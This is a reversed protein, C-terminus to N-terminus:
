GHGDTVDTAGAQGCTRNLQRHYNKSMKTQGNDTTLLGHGTANPVDHADSRPSFGCPLVHYVFSGCELFRSFAQILSLQHTRPRGCLCARAHSTVPPANCTSTNKVLTKVLARAAGGAARVDGNADGRQGIEVTLPFTPQTLLGAVVDRPFTARDAPGGCCKLAACAPVSM